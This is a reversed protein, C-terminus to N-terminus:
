ECTRGQVIYPSPELHRGHPGCIAFDQVKLNGFVTAGLHHPNCDVLPGEVGDDVSRAANAREGHIVPLPHHGIEQAGHSVGPLDPHAVHVRTVDPLQRMEVPPEETPEIKALNFLHPEFCAISMIQLSPDHRRWPKVGLLLIWRNELDMAARLVLVSIQEHVLEVEQHSAAIDDVQAIRPAPGPIALLVLLSDPAPPARDIEVVEHVPSIKDLLLWVDVAPPHTDSATTIAAIHGVPDDAMRVAECSRRRLAADAIEDAHPAGTVEVPDELQREAPFRWLLTDVPEPVPTRHFVEAVCRRWRHDEVVFHVESAGDLLALLHERCELHITYGTLEHDERLFRVPQRADSARVPADIAQVADTPPHVGVEFRDGGLRRFTSLSTFCQLLGRQYTELRGPDRRPTEM